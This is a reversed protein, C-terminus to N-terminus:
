RLTLNSVVMSRLEHRLARVARELENRPHGAALRIMRGNQLYIQIEPLVDYEGTRWNVPTWASSPGILVNSIDEHSIQSLRPWGMGSRQILLHQSLIQVTVDGRVQSLTKLLSYVLLGIILYPISMWISSFWWPARSTVLFIAGGVAFLGIFAMLVISLNAMKRLAPTWGLPLFRIERQRSTRAPASPNESIDAPAFWGFEDGVKASGGADICRRHMELALPALWQPPYGDAIMLAPRDRFVAILDAESVFIERRSKPDALNQSEGSVLQPRPRHPTLRFEVVDSILESRMPRLWVLRDGACIMGAQIEVVRRGFAVILATSGVGVTFVACMIAALLSFSSVISLVGAIAGVFCASFVAAGWRRRSLVYRSGDPLESVSIAPPLAGTM